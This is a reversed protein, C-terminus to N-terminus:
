CCIPLGCGGTITFTIAPSLLLISGFVSVTSKLLGFIRNESFLSTSADGSVDESADGISLKEDLLDM